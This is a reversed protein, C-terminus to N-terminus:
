ALRASPCFGFHKFAGKQIFYTLFTKAPLEDSNVAFTAACLDRFVAHLTKNSTSRSLWEKTTLQQDPLEGWTGQRATSCGATVHCPRQARM